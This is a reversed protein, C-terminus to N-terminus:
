ARVLRGPLPSFATLKQTNAPSPFMRSTHLPFTIKVFALHSGKGRKPAPEFGKKKLVKVIKNSSLIPLKPM